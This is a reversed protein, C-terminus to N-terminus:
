SRQPRSGRYHGVRYGAWGAALAVASLELVHLIAFVVGAVAWAVLGVVVIAAVVVAM